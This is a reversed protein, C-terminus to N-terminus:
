SLSRVCKILIGLVFVMKVCMEVNDMYQAKYTRQADGVMQKAGNKANTLQNQKKFLKNYQQKDSNITETIGQMNNETSQIHSKLMTKTKELSHRLESLQDKTNNFYNQFEDVEPNKHYMVYYKEYDDLIDPLKDRAQQVADKESSLNGRIIEM